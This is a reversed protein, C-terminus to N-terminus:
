HAVHRGRIRLLGHVGERGRREREGEAGPSELRCRPLESHLAPDVESHRLCEGRLGVAVDREGDRDVEILEAMIGLLEVPEERTLGSVRVNAEPM